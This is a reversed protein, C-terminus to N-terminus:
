RRTGAELVGASRASRLGPAIEIVPRETHREAGDAGMLRREIAGILVHLILMHVEQIRDAFTAREGGAEQPGRVIWEYDCMGALAGGGKGLMGVTMM